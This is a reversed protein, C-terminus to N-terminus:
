NSEAIDLGAHAIRSANPAVKHSKLLAAEFRNLQKFFVQVVALDATPQLRAVLGDASPPFFILFVALNSQPPRPSRPSRSPLGTQIFDVFGTQDLQEQLTGLAQTVFSGQPRTWPNRVQDLLVELYIVGRVRKACGVATSNSHAVVRPGLGPACRLNSQRISACASAPSLFFASFSPRVITKM